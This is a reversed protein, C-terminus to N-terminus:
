VNMPEKELEHSLQSGFFEKGMNNLGEPKESTKEVAETNPPAPRNGM